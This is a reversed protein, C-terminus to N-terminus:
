FALFLLYLPFVLLLLFLLTAYIYKNLREKSFERELHKLEGNKKQLSSLSNKSEEKQKNYELLPVTAKLQAELQGVRYNAGELREQKIKLEEKLDQYLKQFFEFDHPLTDEESSGSKLEKFFNKADIKIKGGGKKKEQLLSVEEPSLLINKGRKVASILSKQIYRDLTRLSVRLLQAAEARSLTFNDEM